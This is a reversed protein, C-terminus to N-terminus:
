FLASLMMIENFILKNEGLYLQVIARQNSFVLWDILWNVLLKSGSMFYQCTSSVPHNMGFTKFWVHLVSTWSTLVKHRTWFKQIYDGQINLKDTSWTQNLVKPHLWGTHEVQWYKMDPEFSKISSGQINLHSEIYFNQGLCSTSVFQVYLFIGDLLKSGSLNFMCPSEMWTKFWIHLVSLNFIRNLVKPIFWGTLEVQWYKMAPEFSKTLQNISQNTNLLWRAIKSFMCPIEMWTSYVPHNWGLKSGSM